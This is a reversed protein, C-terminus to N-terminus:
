HCIFDEKNSMAVPSSGTVHDEPEPKLESEFEKAALEAVGAIVVLEPVGLGFLAHSPM